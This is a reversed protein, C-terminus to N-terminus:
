RTLATNRPVSPWSDTRPCIRCPFRSTSPSRALSYGASPEDFDAERVMAARWAQRFEEQGITQTRQFIWRGTTENRVKQALGVCNLWAARTLVAYSGIASM